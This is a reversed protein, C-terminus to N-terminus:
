KIEKTLNIREYEYNFDFVLQTLFSTDFDKENNIMLASFDWDSFDKEDAFFRRCIESCNPENERNLSRLLRTKDSAYVYVPLVVLRSDTLLADIGAPNFVGINIKDEQLGEIPTGYFWGNFSAAELMSGNLVKEGFELDNLFFYDKGNVEYDRKPRTTCSVIGSTIDPYQSVIWKQITDKGSASKGFFAIVKIKNEM